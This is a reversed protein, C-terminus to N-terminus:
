GWLLRFFRGIRIGLGIFFFGLVDLFLGFCGNEEEFGLYIGLSVDGWFCSEFGLLVGKWIIILM